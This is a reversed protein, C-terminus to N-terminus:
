PVCHGSRGKALMDEVSMKIDYVQATLSTISSKTGYSILTMTSKYKKSDSETGLITVWFFLSGDKVICNLLFTKDDFTVAIVSMPSFHGDRGQNFEQWSIEWRSNKLEGNEITLAEPRSSFRLLRLLPRASFRPGVFSRKLATQSALILLFSCWLSRSRVSILTLM